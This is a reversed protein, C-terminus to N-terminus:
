QLSASVIIAIAALFVVGAAGWLVASSPPWRRHRPAAQPTALGRLGEPLLDPRAALDELRTATTVPMALPDFRPDRPPTGTSIRGTPARSSVRNRVSAIELKPGGRGIEIEDGFNLAAHKIRQGNLWTGNRSGTDILLYRGDENRIEAHRGSADLDVEPDFNVDSDPMRGIRILEQDFEFERGCDAGKIQRLRIM